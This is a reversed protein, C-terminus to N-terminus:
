LKHIIKQKLNGQGREPLIGIGEQGLWGRPVWVAGGNGSKMVPKVLQERITFSQNIM